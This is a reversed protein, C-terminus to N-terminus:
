LHRNRGSGQTTASVGVAAVEGLVRVVVEVVLVDSQSHSALVAGVVVEVAGGVLLVVVIVGIAVVVVVVM